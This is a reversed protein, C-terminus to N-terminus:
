KSAEKLAEIVLKIESSAWLTEIEPLSEVKDIVIMQALTGAAEIFAIEAIELLYYGGSLREVEARLQAVLKDTEAMDYAFVFEDGGDNHKYQRLASELDKDM